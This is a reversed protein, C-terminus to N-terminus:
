GDVAIAESYTITDEFQEGSQEFAGGNKNELFSLTAGGEFSLPKQVGKAQLFNLHGTFSLTNIPTVVGIAAGKIKGKILGACTYEVETIALSGGVELPSTAKIFGLTIVGSISIEGAKAGATSCNAFGFAKCGIFTLEIDATKAGTIRGHDTGGTCQETEGSVPELLEGGVTSTFTAKTGSPLFEPLAASASTAALAVLACVSTLMLLILKTRNM